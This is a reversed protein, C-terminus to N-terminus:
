RLFSSYSRSSRPLSLQALSLAPPSCPLYSANKHPWCRKPSSASTIYFRWLICVPEQLTGASPCSDSALLLCSLPPQLNHSHLLSGHKLLFHYLPRTLGSRQGQIRHDPFRQFLATMKTCTAIARETNGSTKIYLKARGSRIGPQANTHLSEYWLYGSSALTM